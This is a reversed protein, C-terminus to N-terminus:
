LQDYWALVDGVYNPNPPSQPRESAPVEVWSLSATHKKLNVDSFSLFGSNDTALAFERLYNGYGDQGNYGNYGRVANLVVEDPTMAPISITLGSYGDVKEAALIANNLLTGRKNALKQLNNAYTTADKLTGNFVAVGRNLNDEWNWVQNPDTVNTGTIQMIGVGGDSSIVPNGDADFQTLHNEQEAIAGLLQGYNYSTKSPWAAPPSKAALTNLITQPDPNAANITLDDLTATVQQGDVTATATLTLDGGRFDNNWIKKDFTVAGGVVTTTFTDSTDISGDAFDIEATWQFQTSAVDQTSGDIQVEATISPMAPKATITFTTQGSPIQIALGTVNISNTTAPSFPDATAQLTYGTGPKDLTVDNFDAVGAVAAVTLTGGLTSNGPNNAIALTVNGSFNTNLNGLSDLAAVEVEFAHGTYVNTTPQTTVLLQGPLQQINWTGSGVDSSGDASTQDYSWTGTFQVGTATVQAQASFDVTLPQGSGGVVTGTGAVQASVDGQSNITGTGTGSYAPVATTMVGNSVTATVQNSLGPAPVASQTQNGNADTYTDTGSFTGTYKGDYITHSL